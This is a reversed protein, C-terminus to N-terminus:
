AQAEKGALAREDVPTKGYQGSVWLSALRKDALSCIWEVPELVGKPNYPGSNRTHGIASAAFFRNESFKMEIANVFGGMENERLFKRCLYDVADNANLQAQPYLM